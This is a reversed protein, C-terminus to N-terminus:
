TAVLEAIVDAEELSWWVPCEIGAQCLMEKVKRYARIRLFRAITGNARDARHSIWTGDAMDTGHNRKFAASHKLEPSWRLLGVSVHEPGRPALARRVALFLELYADEWGERLLIPEFKFAVPYNSRSLIRAAQIRDRLSATGPEYRDIQAQPSLSFAVTTRGRHHVTLLADVEASKTRLELRGIDGIAFRQALAAGVPFLHADLLSDALEGTCYLTEYDDGAGRRTALEQLLEDVCVHFRLPRRGEGRAQLYCYTCSAMCGMVPHIYNEGPRVALVGHEARTIWGSRPRPLLLLTGGARSISAEADEHALITVPLGVQTFREVIPAGLPSTAADETALLRLFGLARTM